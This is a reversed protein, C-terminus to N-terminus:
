ANKTEEKEQEENLFQKSDICNENVFRSFEISKSMLMDLNKPTFPLPQENVVLGPHNHDDIKRWGLVAAASLLRDSIDAENEGSLRTRKNVKQLIKRLEEKSILKILIETDVDFQIWKKREDDFIGLKGMHGGKKAV